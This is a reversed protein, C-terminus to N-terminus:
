EFGNRFMEDGELRAAVGTLASGFIAAGSMLVRGKADIASAHPINGYPDSATVRAYFYITSTSEGDLTDNGWYARPVLTGSSTNTLRQAFFYSWNASSNRKIGTVVLDSDPQTPSVFVVGGMSSQGPFNAAGGLISREARWNGNPNFTMAYGQEIGGITHNGVIAVGNGGNVALAAVTHDRQDSSGGFYPVSRGSNIAPYANVCSSPCWTTDYDGNPKLRAMGIRTRGLSLDYAIGGIVINGAGDIAVARAQAFSRGPNTEFSIRRKGSSGSFTDDLYGNTKLRAIAFEFDGSNSTVAYGAVVIRDTSDIAVAYAKDELNGGVDFSVNRYGAGDYFTTDLAGTPTMRVIRFDRDEGGNLQISGVVVIRGQSDIAAASVETFNASVPVYDQGNLVGSDTFRLLLLCWRGVPCSNAVQYSLVVFSGGDSRPMHAIAHMDTGTISTLETGNNAFTRDLGRAGALSAIALLGLMAWRGLRMTPRMRSPQFLAALAAPSLRKMDNEPEVPRFHGHLWTFVVNPLLGQCARFVM